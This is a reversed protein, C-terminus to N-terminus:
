EISSYHLKQRKLNGLSGICLIVVIFRYVVWIGKSLSDLDLICFGLFHFTKGQLGESGVIPRVAFSFAVTQSFVADVIQHLAMLFMLVVIGLEATKQM